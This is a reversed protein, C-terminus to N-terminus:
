LTSIFGFSITRSIPIGGRPYDPDIGSNNARWLIGVNNLYIYFQLHELPLSKFVQRSMDYSLSIDQLRIHDGREVMMESYNYFYDRNQNAPYAISPVNTSKEDGPKQWRQAYEKHSNWYYFLNNYNISSRTFYYGLKYSINFALSIGKFSFRNNM